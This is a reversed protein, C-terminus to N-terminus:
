GLGALDLLQNYKERASNDSFPFLENPSKKRAGIIDGSHWEYQQKIYEDRIKLWKKLAERGETSIFSTKDKGNKTYEGRFTIKCITKLNGDEDEYRFDLDVDNININTAEEIRCGSTACFLIFAKMRVDARVTIQFLDDKTPIIEEAPPTKFKSIYKSIKMLTSEKMFKLIDNYKLFIMVTNVYGSITSYSATKLEGDRKIKISDAFGQIDKLLEEDNAETSHTKIWKQHKSIYKDADEDICEFFKNLAVRYSEKTSEAKQLELFENIKKSMETDGNLTYVFMAIYIKRM